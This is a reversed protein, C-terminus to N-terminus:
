KEVARLIQAMIANMTAVETKLDAITSNVKKLDKWIQRRQSSQWDRNEEVITILAENRKELIEFRVNLIALDEKQDFGFTVITAVVVLAIGLNGVIMSRWFTAGKRREVQEDM